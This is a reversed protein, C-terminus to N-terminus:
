SITEVDYKRYLAFDAITRQLKTERCVLTYVGVVPWTNMEHKVVDYLCGTRKGRLVDGVKPWYAKEYATM